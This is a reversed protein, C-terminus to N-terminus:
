KTPQKAQKFLGAINEDSSVKLTKAQYGNKYHIFAKLVLQEKTAKPLLMKSNMAASIIRDRLLYVANNTVDRGTMVETFFDVIMPHKDILLAIMGGIISPSVSIGSKKSLSEALACARDILDSENEYISLVDTATPTAFKDSTSNNRYRILCRIIGTKLNAQKVGNIGLIAGISRPAGVDITMFAKEDVGYMVWLPITVGSTIIAHLRHQGDVLRGSRDFKLCEGNDTIWNGNKMEAVYKAVVRTNVFRNTQINSKLMSAAVEPTVVIKETRM